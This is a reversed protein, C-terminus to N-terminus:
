IIDIFELSYNNERMVEDKHIARDIVIKLDKLDSSDLSIFFEKRKSAQSFQLKLNHVVVAIKKNENLNEDFVIRIDSIIRAKDFNNKNLSIIDQGKATIRISNYEGLLLSLYKKLRAGDEPTFESNSILYSESFDTTFTDIDRKASEFIDVISILASIIEHTDKESVSSLFNKSKEFINVLSEGPKQERFVKALLEVQNESLKTINEFGSIFRKPISYKNM